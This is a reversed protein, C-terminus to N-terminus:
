LEEEAESRCEGAARQHLHPSDGSPGPTEPFVAGPSVPISDLPRGFAMEAPTCIERGLMLASMYSTYDQVTFRCGMLVMPLHKDWDRQHKAQDIALQQGLTKNFHEVLGDIQPHLPTTRTKHMGLRECMTAFERSEFYRGQDSDISEAAGFRSFMGVTLADLITEAEQDPLAYAEPWKTFYDM